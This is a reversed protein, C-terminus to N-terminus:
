TLKGSRVTTTLLLQPSARQEPVLRVRRSLRALREWCPITPGIRPYYAGRCIFFINKYTKEGVFCLKYLHFIKGRENAYKVLSKLEEQTYVMDPGYAGYETLKRSLEGRQEVPWSHTDVLHLHLVNLKSHAMGRVIDEIVETRMFNRSVDLSVGRHPFEPWDAIEVDSLVVFHGGAEDFEM